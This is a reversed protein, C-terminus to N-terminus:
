ASHSIRRMYWSMLDECCDLSASVTIIVMEVKCILFGLHLSLSDLIVPEAFHCVVSRLFDPGSDMSQGVM